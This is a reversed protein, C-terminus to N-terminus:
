QLSIEFTGILMAGCASSCAKPLRVRVTRMVDGGRRNGNSGHGRSYNSGSFFPRTHELVTDIHELYAKAVLLNM